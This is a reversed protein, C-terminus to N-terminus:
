LSDAVTEHAQTQDRRLNYEYMSIANHHIYQDVRRSNYEDYDELIHRIKNCIVSKAVPMRSSKIKECGYNEIYAACIEQRIDEELYEPVGLKEIVYDQIKALQNEFTDAKLM